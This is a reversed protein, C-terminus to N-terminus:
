QGCCSKPNSCPNVAGCCSGSSGSSSGGKGMIPNIPSLLRTLESGGCNKCAPIENIGQLIEFKEGCEQCRYEYIPM